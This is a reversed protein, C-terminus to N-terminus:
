PKKTWRLETERFETDKKLREKFKRRAEDKSVVDGCKEKLGM